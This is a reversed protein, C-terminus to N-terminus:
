DFLTLLLLDHGLRFSGSCRTGFSYGQYNSLASISIANKHVSLQGSHLYSLRWMWGPLSLLSQLPLTLFITSLFFPYQCPHFPYIGRLVFPLAWRCQGYLKTVNLTMSYYSVCIRVLSILFRLLSSLQSLNSAACHVCNESKLNKQLAYLSAKRQHREALVDLTEIANTATYTWKILHYRYSLCYLHFFRCEKKDWVGGKLCSLICSRQLRRM